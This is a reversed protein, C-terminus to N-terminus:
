GQAVRDWPADLRHLRVKSKGLLGFLLCECCKASARDMAMSIINAPEPRSLANGLSEGGRVAAVQLCCLNGSM